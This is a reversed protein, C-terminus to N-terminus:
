IMEVLMEVSNSVRQILEVMVQEKWILCTSGWIECIHNFKYIDHDPSDTLAAASHLSCKSAGTECSNFTSSSLIVSM